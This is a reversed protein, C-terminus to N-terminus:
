VLLDRLYTKDITYTIYTSTKGMAYESIELAASLM